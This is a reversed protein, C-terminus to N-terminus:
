WCRLSDAPRRCVAPALFTSIPTPRPRSAHIGMLGEALRAMGKTHLGPGDSWLEDLQQDEAAVRGIRVISLMHRAFLQISDSIV